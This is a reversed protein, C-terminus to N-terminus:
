ETSQKKRISFPRWLSSQKAKLLKSGYTTLCVNRDTFITKISIIMQVCEYVTAEKGSLLERLKCM